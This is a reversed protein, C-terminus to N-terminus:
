SCFCGSFSLWSLLEKKDSSANGAPEADRRLRNIEKGAASYSPIPDCKRGSDSDLSRSFSTPPEPFRRATGQPFAREERSM